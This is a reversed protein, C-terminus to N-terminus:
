IGAGLYRQVDFPMDSFAAAKLSELSDFSTFPMGGGSRAGEGRSAVTEEAADTPAEDSKLSELSDVSTSPMGDGSRAGEGGSAVIEEVADTPAKDSNRLLWAFSLSLSLVLGASVVLSAPVKRRSSPRAQLSRSATAERVVRTAEHEVRDDLAQPADMAEVRGLMGEALAKPLDRLKEDVLRDLVAPARHAGELDRAVRETLEAPAALTGLMGVARSARLSPDASFHAAVMEHLEAPAHCLELTSLLGVQIRMRRGLDACGKCEDTHAKLLISNSGAPGAIPNGAHAEVWANVFENCKM